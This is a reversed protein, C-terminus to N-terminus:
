SCLIIHRSFNGKKVVCRDTLTFGAQMIASDITDTAIIVVRRALRRASQLMELQEEQSLKSCLNYPLDVIAADYSGTLARIDGIAVTDAFGYHLLNARAGRVALPNIDRGIIDIGMSLAEILVTGIGCCPDIAKVGAPQPVAINAVARAVRTSLATSYHQPKANHRLWVAESSRCDGFLWRGEAYAVGLLRQPKRMDAKGRIRAGLQREISRQEDYAAAGEAEVYTVKFTSTGLELAEVQHAIEELSGGSYMVALRQKIFPSRSPDISRDSQIYGARPEAGFLTRLELSCLEREDEHCIFTYLNM